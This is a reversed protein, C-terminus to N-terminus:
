LAQKFNGRTIDHRLVVHCSRILGSKNSAKRFERM